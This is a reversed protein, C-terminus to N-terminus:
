PIRKVMGEGASCSVKARAGRCDRFRRCQRLTADSPPIRTAPLPTAAGLHYVVRSVRSNSHQRAIKLAYSPSEYEYEEPHNYFCSAVFFPSARPQATTAIVKRTCPQPALRVVGRSFLPAGAHSILM